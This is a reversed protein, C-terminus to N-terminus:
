ATVLLQERKHAISDLLSEFSRAFAAVGDDLLKQTVADFAIGLEALRDLQARAQDLGIELTLAAAGHDLVANLTDPPMTNVTHPGILNDVYLTDPYAPNKASTSAWLPRQVRAGQTQLREWREGSFIECFRAYAVKANAIAIKGKLSQINPIPSQSDNQRAYALEDLRRDVLTDVRSVFFSAVSAARSLDGGSAALKELGGIYALAAAEYQALSFILTVNVNLGAGILTEIAPIGAPTAPVKIMVNPRGLAAFLRKADAITRDTDHALRPSVELSVYGDAGNRADYVPRLLDAARGIDDLALAEYIEDVGALPAGAASKGAAILQQLADDYDASGTIAKEFITPNSTLGSVGNEIMTALEGSALLGRRINDYWVSQGLQNLEHIKTM